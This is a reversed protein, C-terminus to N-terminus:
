SATGNMSKRKSALRQFMKSAYYGVCVFLGMIALYDAFFLILPEDFDFFVFQNKLLLYSGIERHRFAYIGYATILVAVARLIITRIRSAETIRIIKRAVGILMSWHLGLHVSMLIFGWYSAILHMTRALSTGSSSIPRFVFVHKSMMIGSVPLCVMVVCLLMDIVTGLIRAGSYHGKLLNQHWKHNLIHHLIFLLVMALGVWEHAAEGVLEYAMLVPLMATMTFDIIIQIKKRPTM